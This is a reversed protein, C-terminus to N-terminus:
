HAATLKCPVGRTPATACDISEYPNTHGALPIYAVMGTPQDPCGTNSWTVYRKRNDEQGILRL